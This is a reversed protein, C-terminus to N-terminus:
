LRNIVSNSSDLAFFAIFTNMQRYLTYMKTLNCCKLIQENKFWTTNLSM